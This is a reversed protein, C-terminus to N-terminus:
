LSAACLPAPLRARRRGADHAVHRPLEGAAQSGRLKGDTRVVCVTTRSPLHATATLLTRSCYAHAPALLPHLCRCRDRDASTLPILPPSAGGITPGRVLDALMTLVNAILEPGGLGTALQEKAREINQEVIMRSVQM